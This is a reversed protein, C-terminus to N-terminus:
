KLDAFAKAKKIHEEWTTLKDFLISHSEDLSAGGYYGWEDVLRMNELMELAAFDPLGTEKLVQLFQEHPTSFFTATSGAEPFSKKFEAVIELPTAYTTAAYVRKGLIGPEDRRLVIAKIWKGTDETDFLPFPATESGPLALTWDNNPPLPRMMSGPINSMFFGPM